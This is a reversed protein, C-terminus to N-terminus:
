RVVSAGPTWQGKHHAREWAAIGAGIAMGTVYGLIIPSAGAHRSSIARTYYGISIGGLIIVSAQSGHQMTSRAFPVPRWVDTRLINDRAIRGGSRLYLSDPSWRDVTDVVARLGTLQVRVRDGAYQAHALSAVSVSLLVLALLPRIMRM